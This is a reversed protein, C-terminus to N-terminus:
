EASSGALREWGWGTRTPAASTPKRDFWAGGRRRFRRCWRGCCRCRRTCFWAPIDRGKIDFTASNIEIVDSAYRARRILVNRKGHLACQFFAREEVGCVRCQRAVVDSVGGAFREPEADLDFELLRELQLIAQILRLRKKKMKPM